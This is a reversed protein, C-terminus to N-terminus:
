NWGKNATADQAPKRCMMIRRQAMASSLLLKNKQIEELTVLLAVLPGM